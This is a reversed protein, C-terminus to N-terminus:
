KSKVIKTTYVVSNDATVIKVFYLGNSYKKIGLDVNTSIGSGSSLNDIKSVIRGL